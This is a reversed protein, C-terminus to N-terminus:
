NLKSTKAGPISFTSFCSLCGVDFMRESMMCAKMQGARIWCLRHTKLATTAVYDILFLFFIEVFICLM